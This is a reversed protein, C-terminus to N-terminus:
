ESIRCNDTSHRNHVLYKDLCPGYLMSFALLGQRGPAGIRSLFVSLLYSVILYLCQILLIYPLYFLSSSQLFFLLTPCLLLFYSLQYFTSIKIPLGSVAVLITKKKKQHPLPTNPKTKIKEITDKSFLLFIFVVGGGFFFCVWARPQILRHSIHM